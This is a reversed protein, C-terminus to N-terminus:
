RLAVARAAAARRQGEVVLDAGVVGVGQDAREFPQPAEKAPLLRDQQPVPQGGVAALRHV